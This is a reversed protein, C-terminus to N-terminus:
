DQVSEAGVQYPNWQQQILRGLGHRKVSFHGSHDVLNMVWDLSGLGQLKCVSFCMRRVSDIGSIESSSIIWFFSQWVRGLVSVM